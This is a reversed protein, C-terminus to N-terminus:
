RLKRLLRAARRRLGRLGGALSPGRELDSRHRALERAWAAVRLHDALLHEAAAFLDDDVPGQGVPGESAPTALAALVGEISLPPGLLAVRLAAALDPHPTLAAAAEIPVSPERPSAPEADGAGLPAQGLNVAGLGLDAPLRAPHVLVTRDPAFSAVAAAYAETAAPCHLGRATASSAAELAMRRVEHGAAALARALDGALARASPPDAAPAGAPIPEVLLLRM